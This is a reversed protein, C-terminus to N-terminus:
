EVSIGMQVWVMEVVAAAEKLLRATKEDVGGNEDVHGGANAEGNGKGADERPGNVDAAGDGIVSTARTGAPAVELRLVPLELVVVSYVGGFNFRSIVGAGGGQQVPSSSRKLFRSWKSEMEHVLKLQSQYEKYKSKAERPQTPPCTAATHTSLPTKRPLISITLPPALLQEGEEEEEEPDPSRPPRSKSSASSVSTSLQLSSLHPIRIKTGSGSPALTSSAQTTLSTEDDEEEADEEDTDAAMEGAWLPLSVTGQIAPADQTGSGAGPAANRLREMMEKTLCNKCKSGPHDDTFPLLFKCSTCLRASWRHPPRSSPSSHTLGFKVPSAVTSPRPGDPHYSYLTSPSSIMTLPSPLMIAAPSPYPDVAGGAERQEFRIANDRAPYRATSFPLGSGRALRQAKGVDETAHRNRSSPGIVLNTKADPPVFIPAPVLDTFPRSTTVTLASQSQAENEPKWRWGFGQERKSKDKGKTAAEAM